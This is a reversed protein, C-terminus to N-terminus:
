YVIRKQLKKRTVRQLWVLPGVGCSEKQSPHVFRKTQPPPPPPPPVLAESKLKGTVSKKKKKGVFKILISKQIVNKVVIINTPHWRNFIFTINLLCVTNSLLITWSHKGRFSYKHYIYSWICIMKTVLTTLPVAGVSGALEAIVHVGGYVFHIILMRGDAWHVHDICSSPHLNTIHRYAYCCKSIGCSSGNVFWRAKLHLDSRHRWLQCSPTQEGAQRNNVWVNIWTCILSFMLAGHWQGKHPSNVPSVHIEACLALLASIFEM